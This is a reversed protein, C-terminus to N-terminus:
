QGKDATGSVCPVNKPQEEASDKFFYIGWIATYTTSMLSPCFTTASGMTWTYRRHNRGGSIPNVQSMLSSCSKLCSQPSLDNGGVKLVSMFTFDLTPPTSTMMTHRVQVSKNCPVNWLFIDLLGSELSLFKPLSPNGLQEPTSSAKHGHDLISCFGISAPIFSCLTIM